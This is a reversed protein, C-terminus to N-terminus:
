NGRAMSIVQDIVEDGLKERYTDYVPQVAEIFPTKDEIVTVEVGADRMKQIYDNEANMAQTRQWDVLYEDAGKQLINFIDEPLSEMFKKDTIIVANCIVHGLTSYYKQVEYFKNTYTLMPSNDQGDITGQQLGSYVDNFSMPTPNAGLATFTNIYMENQMVRIKLGSMDEPTSVPRISNSLGRSGDYQFGVCYFGAKDMWDAYTEGLEGRIAKDMGAVSEFLFPLDLLGLKEDYTTLTSSSCISMHITQMRIAEIVSDDGGLEGNPYLEVVVRGETETEVYEKWKELAQHLFSDTAEVHAVKFVLPNDATYEETTGAASGSGGCAVLSFALILVLAVAVVKKM